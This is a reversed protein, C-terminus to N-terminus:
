ITAGGVRNMSAYVQGSCNDAGDHSARTLDFFEERM